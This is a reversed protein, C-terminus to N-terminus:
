MDNVPSGGPDTTIYIGGRHRNYFAVGHRNNCGLIGLICWKGDGGEDKHFM